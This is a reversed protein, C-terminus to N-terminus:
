GHFVADGGPPRVSTGGEAERRVDARGVDAGQLSKPYHHGDAGASSVVQRWQGSARSKVFLRLNRVQVRTNVAENGVGDFVVFWPIIANWHAGSKFRRDAPTWWDPTSSGRADNGMVVHGPGKAWGYRSPVGALPLDNMERMDSVITDISNIPADPKRLVPAASEAGDAARAPPSPSLAIAAAIAAVIAAGPRRGAPHRVHARM